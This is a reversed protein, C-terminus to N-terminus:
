LRSRVVRKRKGQKEKEKAERQRIRVLIDGVAEEPDMGEDVYAQRFVPDALLAHAIREEM